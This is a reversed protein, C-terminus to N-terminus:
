RGGRGRLCLKELEVLLFLGVGFGLIRGWEAAGIPATGFLEQLPALYTFAGQFVLLAAVALLAARNGALAAWRLSSGVIYRSNFLYCLQGAVLTNIAITRSTDLDLGDQRMWVFHGFTGGVLLASVFVVRWLLFGSLIARGPDRPPRRMVGPEPPEFALAIGLTVATVMNVWLVQVPSLPLDGRSSRVRVCREVVREPAGKVCAFANGRPDAHRTAMFKHASGFPIVDVRPFREEVEREDFGAKVAAVVLAGETPEGDLVWLGEQSRLRADNCLLGARLCEALAPAEGQPDVERGGASFAGRPEYGVGSVEYRADGTLVSTVTMENRTLTGTKDSCIVSVAGLTEVAPLRRIIANRRAMGQVGVALTVSMIAPLGEPIAAVVLSVAALFAEGLPYERWGYGVAFTVAAVALIAVSLSRGFRDVQRLLPTTVEQVEGVLASIRGLETRGGTAVVVGLGQGATVLTGSYAMSTRDGLDAGAAVPETDKEVAEAEGTLVAEDIRLDKVQVLRLDASVRDGAGLRVVDGPVLEAAPVQRRQGERVVLAKPSLMGRIAELAREAKGEQVFGIAANIAVVALIVATDLWIRLLATGGAAALLVYILVHDFQRLLRRLPGPPEPAPLQNPGHLGLRRAAEPIGLGDPGSDLLKM